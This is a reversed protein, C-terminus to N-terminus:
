KNKENKRVNNKAEALLNNLWINIENEAITQDGSATFRADNTPKFFNNTDKVEKSNDEPKEETFELGDEKLIVNDVEDVENGRMYPEEYNGNSMNSDDYFYDMIDDPSKIEEVGKRNLWYFEYSAVARGNDDHDVDNDYDVLGDKIMRALAKTDIGDKTEPSYSETSLSHFMNTALRELSFKKDGLTNEDDVENMNTEPAVPAQQDNAVPPINDAPQEQESGGSQIKNIIDNKDTNELKNMDAASIVSNLTYKIDKPDFKEAFDRMKQTLKGTLKQIEKLPDGNVPEQNPPPPAM